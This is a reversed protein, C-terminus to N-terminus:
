PLNLAPTGITALPDLLVGDRVRPADTVPDPETRTGAVRTAELDQRAADDALREAAIRAADDDLVETPETAALITARPGRGKGKGTRALELARVRPRDDPNQTVHAVLQEATMTRLADDSAAPTVTAAEVPADDDVTVGLGDLREAQQRTVLITDGPEADAHELPANPASRYTLAAAGILRRRVDGGAYVERGTPVAARAPAPTPAPEQGIALAALAAAREANTAEITTM